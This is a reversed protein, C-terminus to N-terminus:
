LHSIEKLSFKIPYVDEYILLLKLMSFQSVYNQISGCLGSLGNSLGHAILERDINLNDEGTAMGLAPVNIPVHLVGFFTLAAM